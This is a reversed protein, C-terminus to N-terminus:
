HHIIPLGTSSTKFVYSLKLLTVELNLEFILKDVM